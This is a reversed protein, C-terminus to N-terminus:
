LTIKARPQLVLVAKVLTGDNKGTSSLHRDALVSRLFDPHDGLSLYPLFLFPLSTSFPFPHPPPNPPLSPPLTPLYLLPCPRSTPNPIKPHLSPFYPAHLSPFFSFHVLRYNPPPTPYLTQAVSGLKPSVSSDQVSNISHENLLLTPPPNQCLSDFVWWREGRQM